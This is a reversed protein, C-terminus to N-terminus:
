RGEGGTKKRKMWCAVTGVWAGFCFISSLLLAGKAKDSIGPAFSMVLLYLQAIVAITQVMGAM